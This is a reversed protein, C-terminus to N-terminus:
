RECMSNSKQSQNDIQALQMRSKMVNDISPVRVKRLFRVSAFSQLLHEKFKKALDSHTMSLSNYYQLAKMYYSPKIHDKMELSDTNKKGRSVSRELKRDHETKIGRRNQLSLVGRSFV